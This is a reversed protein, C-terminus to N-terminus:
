QTQVHTKLLTSLHLMKTYLWLPFTIGVRWLLTIVKPGVVGWLLAFLPSVALLWLVHHVLSYKQKEGILLAATAAVVVAKWGVTRYCGVLAAAHFVPLAYLKPLHLIAFVCMWFTLLWQVGTRTRIWSPISSWAKSNSQSTAM